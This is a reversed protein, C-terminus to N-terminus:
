SLPQAASRLLKGAQGHVKEAAEIFAHLKARRTAASSTAEATKLDAELAPRQKAPILRQTNLATYIAAVGTLRISHALQSPASTSVPKLSSAYNFAGAALEDGSVTELESRSTGQAEAKELISAITKSVASQKFVLKVHERRLKGALAGDAANQARLLPVLEGDLADFVAEQLATDSQDGAAAATGLRNSTITLAEEISAVRRAAAQARVALPRVAQCLAAEKGHPCPATPWSSVAGPLAVGGTDPDPPDNKYIQAQKLAERILRACEGATEAKSPATVLPELLAAGYTEPALLTALAVEGLGAACKAKAEALLKQGEERAQRQREASGSRAPPPPPPPEVSPGKALPSPVGPVSVTISQTLSGTSKQYVGSCNDSATWSGPAPFFTADGYIGAKTTYWHCGAQGNFM